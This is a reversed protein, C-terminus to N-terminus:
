GSRRRPLRVPLLRDALLRGATVLRGLLERGLLALPRGAFGAARAPGALRRRLLGLRRLNQQEAADAHDNQGQDDTAAQEPVVLPLQLGLPLRLHLVVTLDLGGAVGDVSEELREGRTIRLL